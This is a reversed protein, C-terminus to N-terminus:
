QLSPCVWQWMETSVISPGCIAISTKASFFFARSGVLGGKHLLPHREAARLNEHSSYSFTQKVSGTRSREAEAPSIHTLLLPNWGFPQTWRRRSLRITACLLPLLLLPAFYFAVPLCCLSWSHSHFSRPVPPPLFFMRRVEGLYKTQPLLLVKLQNNNLVISDQTHLCTQLKWWGVHIRLYPFFHAQFWCCGCWLCTVPWTFIM